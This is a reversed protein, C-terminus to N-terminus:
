DAHRLRAVTENDAIAPHFTVVSDYARRVFSNLADIMEAKDVTATIAPKKSSSVEVNGGSVVFRIVEDHETFDLAGDTNTALRDAVASMGLALDVLPVFSSRSLFKIGDVSFEVQSYFLKYRLTVPKISQADWSRGLVSDLDPVVFDLIVM